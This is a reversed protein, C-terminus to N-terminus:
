WTPSSWTSGSATTSSCASRRRRRRAGRSLPLRPEPARAGRAGAGPGRRGRDAGDRKRGQDRGRRGVRRAAGARLPGGALLGPRQHRTGAGLGGVRVRREAQRCRVGLLAGARDRAGVAQDHLVAGVDAPAHGRGDRSRHRDRALMAFSGSPAEEGLERSARSDPDLRVARTEITVRGGQPMADRANVVLNMLTQEVQRADAFVM